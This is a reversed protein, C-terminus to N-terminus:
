AFAIEDASVLGEIPIVREILEPHQRLWGTEERTLSLAISLMDAEWATLVWAPTRAM